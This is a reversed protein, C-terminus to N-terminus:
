PDRLLRHISLDLGSQVMRAISEVQSPSVGLGDRLRKTARTAVQEAASALWRSATSESVGYLQGIRALRLGDVHHLRLLVREREPLEAVAARLAAAYEARYLDKLHRLEPDPERAVLEGLIEEAAV